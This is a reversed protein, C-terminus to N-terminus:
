PKTEYFLIKLRINQYKAEELQKITNKNYANIIKIQLTNQEWFTLIIVFILKNFSRSKGVLWAMDKIVKTKFNM